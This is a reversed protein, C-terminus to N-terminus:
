DLTLQTDALMDVSVPGVSPQCEVSVRGIYRGLTSRYRQSLALQYHRSVSGVTFM